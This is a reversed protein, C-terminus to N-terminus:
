PILFNKTINTIFTTIGSVSIQPLFYTTILTTIVSVVVPTIAQKLWYIFYLWKFNYGEATLSIQAYNIDIFGKDRLGYVITQLRLAKYEPQVDVYMRNFIKTVKKLDGNKRECLICLVTLIKMEEPTLNSGRDSFSTCIVGKLKTLFPLEQQNM